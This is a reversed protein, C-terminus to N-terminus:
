IRVQLLLLATRPQSSTGVRVPPFAEPVQPILMVPLALVAVLADLAVVEELQEPLAADAVVELWTLM